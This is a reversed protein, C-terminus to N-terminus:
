AKAADGKGSKKSKPRGTKIAPVVSLASLLQADGLAALAKIGARLLESKKAPRKLRLARQKLQDIVAYEGDPMTFSDRVLKTKAPMALNLALFCVKIGFQCHSRHLM